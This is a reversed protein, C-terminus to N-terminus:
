AIRARLLHITASVGKLEVPGIDDFGVGEARCAEAVARSVLVEGPRAYHAIRASLNV